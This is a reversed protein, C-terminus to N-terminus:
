RSRHTDFGGGVQEVRARIGGALSRLAAGDRPMASRLGELTIDRYEIDAAFVARGV